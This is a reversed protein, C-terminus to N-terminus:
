VTGLGNSCPTAASPVFSPAAVNTNSHVDSAPAKAHAAAATASARLSAGYGAAGNNFASAGITFDFPAGCNPATYQGQFSYANNDAFLRCPISLGLALSASLTLALRATRHNRKM